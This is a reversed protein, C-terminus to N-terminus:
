VGLDVAYYDFRNTQRFGCSQYLSLANSNQTAVDLAFHTYGEARLLGVAGALIARGYGRGQHEPSVGLSRLYASGEDDVVGILGVPEAGVTALYYRSDPEDFSEALEALVDDLPEAFSAARISALVGLDARVARRLHLDSQPLPPADGAALELRFESFDYRLREGQAAVFANGSQSAHECVLLLQTVGRARSAKVVAMLLQTGVGRRRQSPNVMGCFEYEGGFGDLAVFGVVDAGDYALLNNVLGDPQDGRLEWNLKLALNDHANVVAALDRVAQLEAADLGARLIIESM